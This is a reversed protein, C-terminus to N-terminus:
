ELFCAKLRGDSTTCSACPLRGPHPYLGWLCSELLFLFTEMLLRTWFSIAFMSKPILKPVTQMVNAFSQNLNSLRKNGPQPKNLM